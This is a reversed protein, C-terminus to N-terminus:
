GRSDEGWGAQEPTGKSAGLITELAAATADADVSEITEIAQKSVLGLDHLHALRARWVSNDPNLGLGEGTWTAENITGTNLFPVSEGVNLTAM